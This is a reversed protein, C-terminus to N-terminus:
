YLRRRDSQGQLRWGGTEAEQTGPNHAQAATGSLITILLYPQSDPALNM